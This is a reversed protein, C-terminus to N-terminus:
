EDRAEDPRSAAYKEMCEVLLNVAPQVEDIRGQDCKVIARGAMYHWDIREGTFIKSAEIAREFLKAGCNAAYIGVVDGFAWLDKDCPKLENM